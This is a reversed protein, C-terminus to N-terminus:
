PELQNAEDEDIEQPHQHRAPDFAAARLFDAEDQAHRSRAQRIRDIRTDGKPLQAVHTVEKAGQYLYAQQEFHLGTSRLVLEAERESIQDITAYDLGFLLSLLLLKDATTLKALSFLPGPTRDLIDQLSRALNLHEAMGALVDCSPASFVPPATAITPETIDGSLLAHSTGDEWGLARDITLLTQQSYNDRKSNAIDSLVRTTVGSQESLAKM